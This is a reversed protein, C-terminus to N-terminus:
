IPSGLQRYEGNLVDMGHSALNRSALSNRLGHVLLWGTVKGTEPCIRAICETQWINAWIEGGIFELQASHAVSAVSSVVCCILLTLM